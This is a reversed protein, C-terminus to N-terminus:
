FSLQYTLRIERGPFPALEKLFSTHSRAERDTLNTGSLVIDHAVRGQFIRYGVSADILTYGDTPEEFAAVREQGATRRARVHGHWAPSEHGLGAGFRFAPIRPLPQDNATLEARVYDGFADMVFHGDGYHFLEVEAHAEFGTFVADAQSWLAVVLGDEEEGTFAQYTFGDFSNSFVSLETRVSETGIRIAADLSLGLEPELEPDGLEFVRTALHPGNSFLEEASPLKASRAASVVFSVAESAEFVGGLSASFGRDNRRRAVGEAETARTEFRAGTQLGFRGVSFEEFLFAAFELTSSPPVFAEEGIAEFDRNRAHIGFAGRSGEALAHEVQLRGEWENNFFRTEIDRDGSVEDVLIEFHQYDTVGFRAEVGKLFNGGLRWGAMFDARRQRLDVRVDGEEGAHGEEEDEEDEDEHREGEEEGHGHGGPVGYDSDYGLFSVGIFGNDGVYSLGGAFRATEVSSNPLIGPLAEEPGEEDEEEEGPPHLEDISALGPIAYDQTKRYLGSLHLAIRGAAGDVRGAANREDAVTGGRLTLTAIVPHAPIERPVRGDEINVVGGVASGGYLLTAPGRIVEIRDAAMAEVSPAHDPSTTSADGSGLGSELVRVRSGGLGRIIPRSSGPGHYSSNVGPQDALTEGLSTQASARLDIGREVHSPTYLDAQTGGGVSVVLEQGHFFLSVTVTVEVTEGATVRVARIGRGARPSEVEILYEGAPVREFRAEEDGEVHLVRGLDVVRVDAEEVPNGGVDVVRVRIEGSVQAEAAGSGVLIFAVALCAARLGSALLRKM